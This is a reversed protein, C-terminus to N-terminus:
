DSQTSNKKKLETSIEKLTNHIEDLRRLELWKVYDPFGYLPTATVFMNRKSLSEAFAQTENLYEEITDKSMKGEAKNKQCLSLIM